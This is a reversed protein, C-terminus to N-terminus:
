IHILSLDQIPKFFFPYNISIPVVKDTFMKKADAGTKSLIGYRSDSALTALNVTEASSMFSFGSRRNKLYCMGYCRKDAKCAEWFIFFLRNAERFDPAGVDIKSWQLYMYHTGPMWTPKGKNTFWFGEERRKFEEDIYDHWQDKKEEPYARWDFINKLRALEKPQEFKVWKDKDNSYVSKPVKPLAIALNQIEIIEGIQGSRSLVIIDHDKDYGYKWKKGKNLRSITTKKVPEITKVLSQEYM